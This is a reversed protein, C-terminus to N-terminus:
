RRYWQQKRCKPAEDAHVHPERLYDLNIVTEKPTIRLTVYQVYRDNNM